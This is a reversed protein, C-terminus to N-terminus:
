RYDELYPKLKKLTRSLIQRVNTGTLGLAEAIDNSNMNQFYSMIVINRERETLEKLAKAIADRLEELQVAEEIIEDSAIEVSDFMDDLSEAPDKKDRYYNKLRNNAICFIWTSLKAKTPDYKDYNQYAAFFVSNVMDEADENSSIHQKLFVFVKTYYKNYFEEFPMVDNDSTKIQVVNTDMFAGNGKIYYYKNLAM